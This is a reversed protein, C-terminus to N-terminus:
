SHQKAVLEAQLIASGSSLMCPLTARGQPGEIVFCRRVPRLAAYRVSTDHRACALLLLSRGSTLDSRM